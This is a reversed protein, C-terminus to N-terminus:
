FVGMSFYFWVMLIDVEFKVYYQHPLLRIMLNTCNPLYCYGIHMELGAVKCLDCFQVTWKAEREGDM